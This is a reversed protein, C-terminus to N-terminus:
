EPLHIQDREGYHLITEYCLQELIANNMTKLKFLSGCVLTHYLDDWIFNEIFFQQSSRTINISSDHFLQM